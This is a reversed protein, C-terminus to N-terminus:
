GRAIRDQLAQTEEAYSRLLAKSRATVAEAQRAAEDIQRFIADFAAEAEERTSVRPAPSSADDSGDASRGNSCAPDVARGLARDLEKDLAESGPLRGGPAPDTGGFGRRGHGPGLVNSATGPRRMRALFPTAYVRFSSRGSIEGLIGLDEAENLLNRAATGSIMLAAAVDESRLVPRQGILRVLDRKRSSSRRGSFKEEADRRWQELRGIEVAQSASWLALQTLARAAFGPLAPSWTAANMSASAAAPAWIWGGPQRAARKLLPDELAWRREAAIMMLRQASGPLAGRHLIAWCQAAVVVKMLVPLPARDLRQVLGIYAQRREAIEHRDEGALEIGYEGAASNHGPGSPRPGEIDVGGAAPGDLRTVIVERGGRTELARLGEMDIAPPRTLTRHTAQAIHLGAPDVDVPRVDHLLGVVHEERVAHGDLWASRAAEIVAVQTRWLRALEEDAQLRAALWGHGASAQALAEIEPLPQFGRMM